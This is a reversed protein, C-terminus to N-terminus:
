PQRLDLVLQRLEELNLWFLQFTLLEFQFSPISELECLNDGEFLEFEGRWFSIQSKRHCSNNLKTLGRPNEELAVKQFNRTM